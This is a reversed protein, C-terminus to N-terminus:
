PCSSKAYFNGASDVCVTLAGATTGIPATTGLGTVALKSLPANTGIGVSNNVIVNDSANVLIDCGSGATGSSTGNGSICVTGGSQPNQISFQKYATGGNIASNQGFYGVTGINDDRVRMYSGGGSQEHGLVTIVSNGSTNALGINGSSTLNGSFDVQLQSLSGVSLPASPNSTGIGVNASNFIVQDTANIFIDCGTPGGSGSATGNGSICVTGGSQPNQIDFQEYVTGGNVVSNQGINGYTGDTEDKMLIISGTGSTHEGDITLVANGANNIVNMLGNTTVNGEYDVNFNSYTGVSLLSTPNTTGIGINGPNASGTGLIIMRDSFSESGYTGSVTKFHLNNDGIIGIEARANGGSRMVISADNDDAIKDMVAYTCDPACDSVYDAPYNVTGLRSIRVTADLGVGTALITTGIGVSGAVFLDASSDTILGSNGTVTATTGSASFYGLQYQPSATVTGTGFVSGSLAYNTGSRAIPVLDGSQIAGGNLMQSIKEQAWVPSALLLFLIVLFRM